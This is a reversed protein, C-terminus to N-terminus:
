EHESSRDIFSIDTEYLSLIRRLEMLVENDKAYKYRGELLVDLSLVAVIAIASVLLGSYFEPRLSTFLIIMTIAVAALALLIRSTRYEPSSLSCGAMAEKFTQVIHRRAEDFSIGLGDDEM